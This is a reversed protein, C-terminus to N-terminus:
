RARDDLDDRRRPRDDDHDDPGPRRRRPIDDEDDHGGTDRSRRRPPAEEYDDYDDQGRRIPRHACKQFPTALFAAIAILILGLGVEVGGVIWNLTSENDKTWQEVQDPRNPDVSMITYVLAVLFGVPLPALFALGLLRAPIGQVAKTQTLQLRGRVLAILGMIIMGIGLGIIM